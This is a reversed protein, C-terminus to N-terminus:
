GSWLAYINIQIGDKQYKGEFKRAIKYEQTTEEPDNKENSSHIIDTFFFMYLIGVFLIVLGAIIVYKSIGKNNNKNNSVPVQNNVNQIVPQPQPVVGTNPTNVVPQQVNNSTNLNQNNNLNM